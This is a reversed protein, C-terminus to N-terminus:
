IIKSLDIKNELVMQALLDSIEEAAKGLRPVARVALYAKIPDNDYNAIAEYVIQNSAFYTILKKHFGLWNIPVTIKYFEKVLIKSGEAIKQASGTSQKKVIEDLVDLAPKDINFDKVYKQSGGVVMKLYNTQNIKSVDQSIKLDSENIEPFLNLTKEISSVDLLEKPILEKINKTLTSFSQGSSKLKESLFEGFADTLNNAEQGTQLNAGPLITKANDSNKSQEPKPSFIKFILCFSVLGFCLILFLIIFNAPKVM